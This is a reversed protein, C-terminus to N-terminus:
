TLWQHIGLVGAGTIVTSPADALEALFEEIAEPALGHALRHESGDCSAGTATKPLFVKGRASQFSWRVALHKNQSRRSGSLAKLFSDPRLDWVCHARAPV